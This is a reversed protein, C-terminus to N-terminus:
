TETVGLPPTPVPSLLMPYRDFGMRRVERMLTPSGGMVPKTTGWRRSQKVNYTASRKARASALPPAVASGAEASAETRSAIPTSCAPLEAVKADLTEAGSRRRIGAIWTLAGNM